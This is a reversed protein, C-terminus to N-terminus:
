IAADNLYQIILNRLANDTIPPTSELSEVIKAIANVIPITSNLGDRVNNPLSNRDIKYKQILFESELFSKFIDDKRAM